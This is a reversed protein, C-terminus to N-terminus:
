YNVELQAVESMMKPNWPPDWTIEITASDVGEAESAQQRIQEPMIQAVPCNPATLTMRVHVNTSGEAEQVDIGYILGLEFVDVPIEPDYVKKINEVVLAEIKGEKTELDPEFNYPREADGFKPKPAQLVAKENVVNLSKM